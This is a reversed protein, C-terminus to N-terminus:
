IRIEKLYLEHQFDLHPNPGCQEKLHSQVNIYKKHQVTAQTTCLKYLKYQLGKTIYKTNEFFFFEYVWRLTVLAHM